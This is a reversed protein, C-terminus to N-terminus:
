TLQNKNLDSSPSTSSLSTYFFFFGSSSFLFKPIFMPSFLSTNLSSSIIANISSSISTNIIRNIISNTKINLSATRNNFCYHPSLVISHYSRNFSINIGIRSFSNVGKAPLKNYSGQYCNFCINRM